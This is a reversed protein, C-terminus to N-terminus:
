CRRPALVSSTLKSTTEKGRLSVAIYFPSEGEREGEGGGRLLLSVSRPGLTSRPKDACRRAAHKEVHIKREPSPQTFGEGREM